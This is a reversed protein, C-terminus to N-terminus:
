LTLVILLVQEVVRHLISSSGFINLDKGSMMSAIVPSHYLLDEEMQSTAFQPVRVDIQEALFIKQDTDLANKYYIKKYM